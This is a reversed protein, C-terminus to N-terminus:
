HIRTWTALTLDKVITDKEISGHAGLPWDANVCGHSLVPGAYHVSESLRWDPTVGPGRAMEHDRGLM